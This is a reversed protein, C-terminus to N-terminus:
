NQARHDQIFNEVLQMAHDKVYRLDSVAVAGHIGDSWTEVSFFAKSGQSLPVKHKLSMDLYYHYYLSWPMVLRMRLNLLAAEPDELSEEFSIVNFGAHRLRQAFQEQLNERTIGGIHRLDVYDNGFPPDINVAITKIGKLTDKFFPQSDGGYNVAKVSLTAFVLLMTTFAILVHDKMMRRGAQNTLPYNGNLSRQCPIFKM